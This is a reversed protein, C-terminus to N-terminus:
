VELPGFVRTNRSELELKRKLDGRNRNYAQGVLYREQQAEALRHEVSDLDAREKAIVKTLKKYQKDIQAQKTQFEAISQALRGHQKTDEIDQALEDDSIKLRLMVDDLRETREAQQSTDQALAQVFERYEALLLVRRSDRTSKFESLATTAQETM